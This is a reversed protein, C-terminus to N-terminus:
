ADLAAAPANAAEPGLSRDGLRNSAAGNARTGIGPAAGTRPPAFWTKAGAANSGMSASGAVIVFRSAETPSAYTLPMTVCVLVLVPSTTRKGNTLESMLNM